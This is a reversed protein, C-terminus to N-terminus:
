FGAEYLKVLTYLTHNVPVPVKLEEGLRAVHGNLSDIETKKNRAMDQATSSRTGSMQEAIQFAGAVAKQPDELGPPHIGKAQAVALVEHVTTEVIRQADASAIIQGYTARGLGSVANLACNWVLKTWLEGEINESLRCPVHARSFLNAIMETQESKPGVVLDGRGLHKLQGPAPMAAAVYVVAPLAAIGSAKRIEEVNNVGNQLSIAIAHPSIHKALERSAAATDTTKVSFLVIDAGKAAAIEASAEPHVTERFQVTDLLLGSKRVAEVFAARGIMMVPAGARALMGGFYSGVAGAGVVAIRPWTTESSM